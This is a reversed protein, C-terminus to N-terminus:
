DQEEFAKELKERIEAVLPSTDIIELIIEKRQEKLLKSIFSKIEPILKYQVDGLHEANLRQLMPPNEPTTTEFISAEEEYFCIEDFKEEWQNNTM